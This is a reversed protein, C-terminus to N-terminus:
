ARVSTNGPMKDGNGPANGLATAIADASSIKSDFELHSYYNATVNFNSHGIVSETM